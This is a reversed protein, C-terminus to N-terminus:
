SASDTSRISAEWWSRLPDQPSPEFRARARVARLVASVRLPEAGTAEAWTRLLRATTWVQVAPAGAQVERLAKRDDTAIACGRHHALAITAAEGDDVVAAFAVFTDLEAETELDLVELLGAAALPQLDVAVREDPDEGTGGRLVWLAEETVGKAVGFRAPIAALIEGM